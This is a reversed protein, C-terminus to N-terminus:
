RRQRKRDPNQLLAKPQFREGDEVRVGVVPVCARSIPAVGVDQVHAKAVQSRTGRHFSPPAHRRHSSVSRSAGSKGLFLHVPSVRLGGLARELGPHPVEPRIENEPVETRCACPRSRLCRTSGRHTRASRSSSAGAKRPAKRRDGRTTRPPARAGIDGTSEDGRLGPARHYLVTGTEM